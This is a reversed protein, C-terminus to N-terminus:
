FSSAGATDPIKHYNAPIQQNEYNFAKNPIEIAFTTGQALTSKVMVQGQLKEITEKVIYLGLGSGTTHHNARFFMSFIKDLHEAAIGCGNDTVKIVARKLTINATIKIFAVRRHPSAYRIANSILNNLVTTLRYKDTIFACAQQVSIIKKISNFNELYNYQEFSNKILQQIAVEEYKTELRANKSITIMDQIFNDLRLVSKEQLELYTRIKDPDTEYKCLNILGLVSTLPARLDHSIRYVYRDMEENLKKLEHNQREMVKIREQASAELDRNYRKVKSSEAELKNILVHFTGLLRFTIVCVIFFLLLYSILLSLSQITTNSDYFKEILLFYHATIIVFGAASALVIQYTKYVFYTVTLIIIICFIVTELIRYYSATTACLYDTLPNHVIVVLILAWIMLNAALEFHKQYVLPFIAGAALLLIIDGAMVIWPKQELLHLVFGIGAVFCIYFSAKILSNAKEQIYAPEALYLDIITNHIKKYM